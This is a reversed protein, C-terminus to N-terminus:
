YRLAVCIMAYLAVAPSCSCRSLKVARHSNEVFWLSM